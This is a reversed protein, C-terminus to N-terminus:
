QPSTTTSGEEKPLSNFRNTRCRKLGFRYLSCSTNNVQALCKGQKCSKQHERDFMKDQLGVSVMRVLQEETFFTGITPSTNPQSSSGNFIRETQNSRYYYIEPVPSFLGDEGIKKWDVRVQNKPDKENKVKLIKGRIMHVVDKLGIRRGVTHIQFNGSDEIQLIAVLNPRNNGELIVSLALKSQSKTVAFEAVDDKKTTAFPLEVYTVASLIENTVDLKKKTYDIAMEVECIFYKTFAEIANEPCVDWTHKVRTAFLFEKV